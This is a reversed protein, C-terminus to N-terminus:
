NGWFSDLSPRSGSNQDTQSNYGTAYKQNLLRIMKMAEKKASAPLTPDNLNGAMQKYLLVDKDSQPGSMKPMKSILGGSIVDLQAQAKTADTDAGVIRGAQNAIMGFYSGPASEILPAAQDTLEMVATADQGRQAQEKSQILTGNTSGIPTYQGTKPNFAMPGNPTEVHQLTPTEKQTSARIQAELLQNNLGAKEMELAQMQRARTLDPNQDLTVKRGDALMVASPDGKVRFGKQGYVEIPASYDLMLANQGGGPMPASDFNYTAGTVNNRLYNM